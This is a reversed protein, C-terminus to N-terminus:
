LLFLYKLLFDVYEVCKFRYLFADENLIEMEWGWVNTLSENFIIEPQSMQKECECTVEDGSRIAGPDEAVAVLLGTAQLRWVEGPDIRAVEGAVVCHSLHAFLL